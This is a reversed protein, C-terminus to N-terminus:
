KAGGRAHGEGRAEFGGEIREDGPALLVETSAVPLGSTDPLERFSAREVSLTEGRRGRRRQRRSLHMLDSEVFHCADPALHLGHTLHDAERTRELLEEREHAFVRPE